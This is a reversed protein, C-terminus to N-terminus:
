GNSLQYMGKKNEMGTPKISPMEKSSSIRRNSEQRDGNEGKEFVTEQRFVAVTIGRKTVFYRRPNKSTKGPGKM